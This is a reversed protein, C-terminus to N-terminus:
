SYVFNTWFWTGILSVTVLGIWVLIIKVRKKSSSVEEEKGIQFGKIWEKSPYIEVKGSNYITQGKAALEGRFNDFSEKSSFSKVIKGEKYILAYVENNGM